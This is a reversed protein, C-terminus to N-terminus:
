GYCEENWNDDHRTETGEQAVEWSEAGCRQCVFRTNLIPPMMDQSMTYDPRWDHRQAAASAQRDTSSM